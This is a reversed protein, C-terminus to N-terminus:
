RPAIRELAAIDWPVAWVSQLGGVVQARYTERMTMFVVKGNLAAVDTLPTYTLQDTDGTRLIFQLGDAKAQAIDDATKVRRISHVHTSQTM